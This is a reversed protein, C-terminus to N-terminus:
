DTASDSMRRRQDTSYICKSSKAIVIDHFVLFGLVSQEALTQDAFMYLLMRIDHRVVVGLSVKGM